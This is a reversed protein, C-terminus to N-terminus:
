HDADRQVRHTTVVGWLHFHFARRLCQLLQRRFELDLEHTALRVDLRRQRLV